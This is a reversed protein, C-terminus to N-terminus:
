RYNCWEGPTCLPCPRNYPSRGSDQKFLMNDWGDVDGDCDFDGNCPDVNTCPRTYRNRGMESQFLTVDGGDVDRDCTFDGECDCADGIGNGAPPYIDQQDPNYHDPCNDEHDIYDDLILSLERSYASENGSLDYATLAIFHPVHEYMFLRDLLYSTVKGANIVTTYRGSLNGYYLYYGGM